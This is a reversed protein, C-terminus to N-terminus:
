SKGDKKETNKYEAKLAEIFRIAMNDGIGACNSAINEPSQHIAGWFTKFQRKVEEARKEGLVYGYDDKVAMLMEVIPDARWMQARTRSYEQLAKNTPDQSSEVFAKLTWATAEMSLTFTIDIGTARLKWLHKMVQEYKWKSAVRTQTAYFGRKGYRLDMIAINGDAYPVALGEVILGVHWANLTAKRLQGELRGHINSLLDNWTKREETHSHGNIDLWLYDCYGKPELDEKIPQMIMSLYVFMSNPECQDIIITTM